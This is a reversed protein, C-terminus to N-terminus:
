QNMEALCQDIISGVTDVYTQMAADVDGGDVVVATVVALKADYITGSENTYTESVPSAPAPVSNETFFKNGAEALESEDKFGNTLPSIVLAPDLHNKKWVTNPDNPSPKLHFEGEAYTYTKEQDTGPNTTFEEAKTSWHVDEAGYVWLTQVVDGDLMTDLLADFVAQNHVPDGQDIIVWVPAERDFYGGFTDKIEQIPPLQVLEPDVENKILNDTLTQYWSGAWYTFVGSSGMQDNSFWKERAIKTSATLTEPDIAGDQYAKQLRLLADKTAQEQFGDIWTGDKEYIAPYAGQWFEPLYNIFPAENGLFGAAVVGYTDGDTGNGDPDGDHFAMLMNYYDDYTKVDDINIGVADLWAKKVYTVCGNGYGPAFGYLHGDKDKLNENIAPATIRSQFEANAYADAMDWLLGTPAYQKFMEASMIMADPYDQSAFLRGVADTYGSHDLQQITLDIGVADEWQKEFDAQGNDVSATLTGNVVITLGDKLVEHYDAKEGSATSGAADGSAATDNSAAADGSGTSNDTSANSSSSSSSASDGSNGGCAVLSVVMTSALLLSLAKKKKM